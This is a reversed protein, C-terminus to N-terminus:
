IEAPPLVREFHEGQDASHFVGHTTGVFIEQPKAANFVLNTAADLEDFGLNLLCWTRGGDLSRYFGKNSVIFVADPNMPDVAFQSVSFEEDISKEKMKSDRYIKLLPKRKLEANQGVPKWNRGGDESKMAGDVGMAFMIRPNSGSIGLPSNILPGKMSKKWTEGGDLSEYLGPLSYVQPSKPDLTTNLRLQAGWPILAIASYIKLPDDSGVAAIGFVVAYDRARFRGGGVREIFEKRHLGGIKYEPLFWTKGGDDSRLYLGVDEIYRYQTDKGPVPQFLVHPFQASVEPFGSRWTLGGNESRWNPNSELPSASQSGPGCAVDIHTSGGKPIVRLVLCNYPSPADALHSDYWVPTTANRCQPEEQSLLLRPELAVIFSVLIIFRLIQIMPGAKPLSLRM